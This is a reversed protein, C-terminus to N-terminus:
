RVLLPSQAECEVARVRPAEAQVSSVRRCQCMPCVPDTSDAEVADRHGCRWVVVVKAMAGPTEM